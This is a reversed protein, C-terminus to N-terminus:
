KVEVFVNSGVEDVLDAEFQAATPANTLTSLQITVVNGAVAVNNVVANSQSQKVTDIVQEHVATLVQASDMARAYSRALPVSVIAVALVVVVIGALLRGSAQRLRPLPAYRTALLVIAVALSIGVFNAAFLTFAGQALVFRGEELLLGVTALPPVLAVAISVGVLSSSLSSRTQAYGGAMGAAIAVGLDRLDPNTRALIQTTPTADPLLLGILYAFAIVTGTGAAVTLFMKLAQRPWAIAVAGGLAVIPGSLPAVVMAGIVTAASDASLGFCAIATALLLMVIFASLWRPDSDLFIRRMVEARENLDIRHRFFTDEAEGTDSADARLRESIAQDFTVTDNGNFM